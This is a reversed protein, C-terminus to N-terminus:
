RRRFQPHIQPDNRTTVPRATRGSKQMLVRQAPTIPLRLLLSMTVTRGNGMGAMGAPLDDLRGPEVTELRFQAVTAIREKTRQSADSRM